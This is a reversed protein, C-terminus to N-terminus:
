SKNRKTMARQRRYETPSMTLPRYIEVRDGDELLYGLSQKTGYVGVCDDNFNIDPVDKNIESLEIAQKITCPLPCQLSKVVQRTPLGYVVSINGIRKKESM